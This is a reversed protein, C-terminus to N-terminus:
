RDLDFSIASILFVVREFHPFRSVGDMWSPGFTAPISALQTGGTWVNTESDRVWVARSAEKAEVMESM